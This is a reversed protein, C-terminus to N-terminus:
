QLLELERASKRTVRKRLKSFFEPSIGLYSAIHYQPIRLDLGPYLSLFDLYRQTATKRVSGLLRRQHRLLTAATFWKMLRDGAPMTGQLSGLRATDVLVFDTPELADITLSAPRGSVWSEVDAACWNETAFYLIRESGDSETFFVRLCGRIVYAASRAIAGPALFTAGREIRRVGAMSALSEIESDTLAFSMSM